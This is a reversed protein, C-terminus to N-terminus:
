LDAADNKHIVVQFGEEASPPAFHSTIRDFQEDTVAFAHGGEANRRHMRARCVEDPLDLYHVEHECDAQEFVGRMWARQTPTNAPFDLVVSLGSRLLSVLHPELASRLRSSCRVYDAISQMEDAFLAALWEDESVVVTDPARGLEAALTSKGAGIKGVLMHLTTERKAM